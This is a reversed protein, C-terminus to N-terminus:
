RTDGGPPLAPSPTGPVTEATTLDLFEIRARASRRRMPSGNSRAYDATFSYRELRYTPEDAESYVRGRISDLLPQAWTTGSGRRVIELGSVRGDPLIWFGVDIWKDVYNETINHLTNALRYTNPDTLDQNNDFKVEQQSLEYLPSHVLRRRAGSGSRGVEALLADARAANGEARYIRALLMRAGISHIRHAPDDLRSMSILRSKAEGAPAVVYNFWLSRLEAIVAVDERGARRATRALDALERQADNYRAMQMQMDALELRATFHRHDEAPLGAQLANLIGHTSQLGDRDFGLHRSLRAHARYLDSVPEPFQAANGRNRRLSAHVIARGEEYGGNLFLAEALALTADADENTPCHRALCAALRQRHDDLRNGTVIIHQGGGAPEQAALTPTLGFSVLLPALFM